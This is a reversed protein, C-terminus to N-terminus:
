FKGAAIKQRIKELMAELFFLNHLTLLKGALIEKAKFLFNLQGLTWNQCTWCSCQKAIPQFVDRFKSKFVPLCGREMLAVGHRALRTPLSCDFLDIGLKIIKELSDLDGIGLLHLPRAKDIKKNLRALIKFMEKRSKGLAGGIGLGFVPLQNVFQLSCQRLDEFLGGQVIGFVRQNEPIKNQLFKKLWLHSREMERKATQKKDFCTGCIDLPYIFDAGLKKQVEASKEPSLFIERGDRPSTFYVGDQTIKKILGRSEPVRWTQSKVPRTQEPFISHIKGLGLEKGKGLSFIQFGGSDTFIPKSFNFFQHLGGIKAVKEVAGLDLFHFSNVIQCQIKALEIDKQDLGGKLVGLTAVPIFAPTLIEGHPTTIKGLRAKTKKSEKLVEFKFM